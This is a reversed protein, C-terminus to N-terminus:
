TMGLVSISSADALTKLLSGTRTEVLVKFKDNESFEKILVIHCAGRGVTSSAHYSNTYTGIEDSFGSGTDIAIKAEAEATDKGSSMYIGIRAQILYIGSKLIEIEEAQGSVSHSFGDTKIPNTDWEVGYWDPDIDVDATHNYAYFKECPCKM